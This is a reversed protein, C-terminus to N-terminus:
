FEGFIVGGGSSQTTSGNSCGNVDFTCDADLETKVGVAQNDPLPKEM